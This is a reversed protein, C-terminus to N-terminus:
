RSNNKIKSKLMGIKESINTLVGSKDTYEIILDINRIYEEPEAIVATGEGTLTIFEKGNFVEKLRGFPIRVEQSLNVTIKRQIAMNSFDISYYTASPRLLGKSLEKVLAEEIRFLKQDQSSGRSYGGTHKTKKLMDLKRRIKRGTLLSDDLIHYYLDAMNRANGKGHIAGTYIDKRSDDWIAAGQQSIYGATKTLLMKQNIILFSYILSALVIIIVWIVLATEITSSGKNNHKSGDLILM